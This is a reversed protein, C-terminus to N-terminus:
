RYIVTGAFVPTSRLNLFKSLEQILIMLSVMKFEGPPITVTNGTMSSGDTNIYIKNMLGLRKTM